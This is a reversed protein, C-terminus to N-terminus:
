HVRLSQFRFVQLIVPWIAPRSFAPGFYLTVEQHTGSFLLSMGFQTGKLAFLVIIDAVLSSEVGARKLEVRQKSETDNNAL